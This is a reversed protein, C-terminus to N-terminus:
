RVHCGALSVDGEQLFQAGVRDAHVGNVRVLVVRSAHVRQGVCADVHDGVQRIRRLRDVAAIRLPVGRQIRPVRSHDVLHGLVVVRHPKKGAVLHRVRDVGRCSTRKDLSRHAVHLRIDLLLIIPSDPHTIRRVVVRRDPDIHRVVEVTVICGIADVEPPVIDVGPTPVRGVLRGAILFARLLELIVGHRNEKGLISAVGDLRPLERFDIRQIAIGHSM